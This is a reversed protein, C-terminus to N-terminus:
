KKGAPPILKLLHDQYEKVFMNGLHGGCDFWIMREKLTRSLFEKDKESLLPDDATHIVRIDPHERLTQGIAELGAVHNLQDLTLDKKEKRFEPLLCKEAYMMGTFTDIERYLDTRSGWSYPTKLVQWEPNQKKASLLIDRLTLRFSLGALVASQRRSLPLAGNFEKANTRDLPPQKQSSFYITKVLADSGKRFFEAKNWYQSMATFDDFKQLAGRLDVPPNLALYRRIGLQPDKKELDAIFLTHLGGMSYGALHVAQPKLEYRRFADDRVLKLMQRLLAADHATNGPFHLGAAEMFQRNFVSSVTIVAYGKYYFLEALARLQGAKYHGGIGPLLILLPAAPDEQKWINYPFSPNEEHMKVSSGSALSVFDSNWLSSKIWWSSENKQMQLRIFKMTDTKAGQPNYYSAISVMKGEAGKREAPPPLTQDDAPDPALPKLHYDNINTYRLAILGMKTLDYPDSATETLAVYSEYSNVARNLSSIYGAYPIVMKIDLASDFLSGVHDRINTGTCFPLILVCGPGIGWRAFAKGMNEDQRPLGFLAHAPDFIGFIGITTNTLFRVLVIGSGTFKAQCLCSVLRGPFALNDSINDIRQIVEEPLISGYIWSIPRVLYHMLVDNVAFMSRNFPELPDNGSLETVIESPTWVKNVAATNEDNVIETTACSCLLVLALPVILLNLYKM